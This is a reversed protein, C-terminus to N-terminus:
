STSSESSPRALIPSGFILGFVTAGRSERAATSSRLVIPSARPLWNSTPCRPSKTPSHPVGSVGTGGPHASRVLPLGWLKHLKQIVKHNVLRAYGEQVETTTRRYGYETHERAIEELIPRLEAHREAYTPRPPQHYYWTSRPLELVALVPGLPHDVVAERALELKTATIM